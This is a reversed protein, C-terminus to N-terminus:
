PAPTGAYRALASPTDLDLLVGAHDIAVEAVHDPNAAIVPRAGVDGEVAMAQPWLARALMVPNGRQGHHTPIIISRREAPAFAAILRDIDPAAIGPMDGLAMVAADVDSALSALGARVSTALGDAYHPNDVFRVPRGVLAQRVADAEHGVVVVVEAVAAALLTDVVRAVMAEGEIPILLKNRGMRSSRGAALVVGAVLPARAVGAGERSQGRAPVDKLLGGVGMQAIDQPGVTLGAALRQLVWDAGNLKPSRVCGPMGLVPRGQHAGLLLLNGPDVPMGFSDITGGARVLGAPLIDARDVVASAGVMLVMDAAAVAPEALAAAVAAVTHPVRRETMVSGALRGVREAIVRATADLVSTRTGPLETQLLAVQHSRFPHLTPAVLAAVACAQEVSARRVALPIIKVTAVLQRATVVDFPAVTALTIAEDISNLQNVAARDLTVVGATPAVLNCRGTFPAQVTLGRGALAEAIQSAALDEPVDDADLRAVMVRTIGAAVMDAIDEQALRRGKKLVRTPLSLSHLLLTGLATVADEEGVRM